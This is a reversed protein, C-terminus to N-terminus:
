TSTLGERSLKWIHESPWAKAWEAAVVFPVGDADAPAQVELYDDVTFGTDAFVRFWEAVTPVFEVGGPEIDVDTWDLRYMGFYPRVLERGVPFSGDEASCLAVLPTSSLFVLRGGPRLLRHAEALWARPECWLAAGFESIAFDFSGDALPVSEADAHIFEIPAGHEEALRRATDLQNESVDLGVVRAGRRWMWASVYGTGCGLEIAELGHMSAPLLGLDAEPVGWQGWTPEAAWLREGGAVWDAAGENWYRRNEIVHDGSMAVDDVTAFWAAV